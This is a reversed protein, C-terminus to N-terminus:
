ASVHKFDEGEIKAADEESSAYDVVVAPPSTEEPTLFWGFRKAMTGVTPQSTLVAIPIALFLGVLVPSMWTLLDPALQYAVLAWVVGMATIGGYNALADGWEEVGDGRRQGKWTVKAASSAHQARGPNASVDHDPRAAGLVRLETLTSKILRLPAASAAAQREPDALTMSMALLKPVFLMGM